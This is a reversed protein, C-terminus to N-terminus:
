ESRVTMLRLRGDAAPSPPLPHVTFRAKGSPTAFRPAHLIRGGVHFEVRTQDLAGIAEYGPVVKAIRRRVGCAEGLADGDLAPTEGFLRRAVSAIIDIESRPGQLRARGGDSLRVFNFMSEQTTPQPEEDRALVPLILTERARGWAHGTNLTTSLYTTQELK